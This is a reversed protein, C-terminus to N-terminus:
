DAPKVTVSDGVKVEGGEIIRCTLGGRWDPILATRLGPVQDDMKQCPDTQGTVLLTVDGFHLTSGVLDEGCHLGDVFFNARRVTWPISPINLEDCADQWQQKNLVTVQRKGPKRQADGELGTSADLAASELTRMDAGRKDRIAIDLIQM